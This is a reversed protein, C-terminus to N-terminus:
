FCVSFALGEVGSVWQWTKMEQSPEARMLNKGVSFLSIGSSTWFGFIPKEWVDKAFWSVRSSSTNIVLTHLTSPFTGIINRCGLLVSELAKFAESNFSLYMWKRFPLGQLNENQLFFWYKMWKVIWIPFMGTKKSRCNWVETGSWNYEFYICELDGLLNPPAPSDASVHCRWLSLGM